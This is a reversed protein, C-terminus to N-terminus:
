GQQHALEVLGDALKQFGQTTDFFDDLSTFLVNRIENPSAPDQEYSFFAPPQLWSRLASRRIASPTGV